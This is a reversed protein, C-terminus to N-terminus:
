LCFGDTGCFSRQEMDTFVQQRLVQDMYDILIRIYEEQNEERKQIENYCKQVTTRFDNLMRSFRHRM